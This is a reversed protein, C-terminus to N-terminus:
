GPQSVGFLAFGITSFVYLGILIKTFRRFFFFRSCLQIQEVRTALSPLLALGDLFFLPVRLRSEFPM